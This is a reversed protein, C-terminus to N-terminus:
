YVQRRQGSKFEAIRLAMEETTVMRKDVLLECFAAVWQDYYGSSADAMTTTDAATDGAAIQTILRMKFDDWPYLGRNCLTVAMGFARSQWPAEFVPEGNKRPLAPAGDMSPIEVVATRSLMNM